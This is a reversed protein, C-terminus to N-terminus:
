AASGEVALDDSFRSRVAPGTRLAWVLLVAVVATLAAGVLLAITYSGTVDLAMGWLPTGVAMGAPMMAMTPGLITPYDRMGFLHSVLIPVLVGPFAMAFAFVVTSGALPVFGFSAAYGLLAVAQCALTVLATVVTGARDNMTGVLINSVVSTLALLSILTGAVAVEVGREAMMPAFHQQVAQVAGFLMIGLGLAIFQPTRFARRAPVGPLVVAGGADPRELAGLARLGAKAPTSRILFLAPLVVLAVLVLAQIRFGWGWGLSEVLTPLVLGAAIGGTGALAFVAGMMTGRRAEFWTNVLMSAAMTTCTGFVLGAVFGLVALIFTNPVFSVAGVALAMIVGAVVISARVGLTRYMLPALFSMAVVGSVAMMSNYVMVESLGVGLHEALPPNLISASLFVFNGATMMCAAAAVVMWHRASAPAPAPRAQDTMDGKYPM